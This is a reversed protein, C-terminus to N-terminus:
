ADTPPRYQILVKLAALMTFASSIGMGVVYAIAGGVAGTRPVLAVMLIVTAALQAWTIRALTAEKGFVALLGYGVPNAVGWLLTGLLLLRLPLVASLFGGGFLALLWSAFASTLIVPLATLVVSVIVGQLALERLKKPDGESIAQGFRPQIWAMLALSGVRAIQMLRNAAGFLGAAISGGFANVLLVDLRGLTMLAASGIFFYSAAKSLERRRSPPVQHHSRWRTRHANADIQSSRHTLLLGVVGALLYSAVQAFILTGPNTSASGLRWIAFALALLAGNKVVTDLAQSAAARGLGLLAGGILAIASASLVLLLVGLQDDWALAGLGVGSIMWILLGGEVVIGIRAVFGLAWSLVSSLVSEQERRPAVAVERAVVRNAGFVSVSAGLLAASLLSLYSGYESPGLIRAILLNALFALPAGVARTAM